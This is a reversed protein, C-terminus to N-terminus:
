GTASVFAKGMEQANSKLWDPVNEGNVQWMGTTTRIMDFRVSQAGNELLAIKLRQDRADPKRVTFHRLDEGLKLEVEYSISEKINM